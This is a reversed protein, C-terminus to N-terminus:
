TLIAFLLQFFLFSPYTSVDAARSCTILAKKESVFLLFLTSHFSAAFNRGGQRRIAEHRFCVVANVILSSALSEATM